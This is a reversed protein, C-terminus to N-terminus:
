LRTVIGAFAEFTLCASPKERMKAFVGEKPHILHIGWANFLAEKIGMWLPTIMWDNSPYPRGM